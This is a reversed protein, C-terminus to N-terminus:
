RCYEPDGTIHVESREAVRVFVLSSYLRRYGSLTLTTCACRLPFELWRGFRPELTLVGLTSILGLWVHFPPWHIVAVVLALTWGSLPM